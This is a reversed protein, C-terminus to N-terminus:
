IVCAKIFKGKEAYVVKLTKGNFKKFSEIENNSRRVTYNPSTITNIVKKKYLKITKKLILSM